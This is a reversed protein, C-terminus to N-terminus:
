RTEPELTLRVSNDTRMRSSVDVARSNFNIDVVKANGVLVSFPAKGRISLDDGTGLMDNYLRTNDSNDVEIWSAGTFHVVLIDEGESELQVLRNSDSEIITYGPLDDSTEVRSEIVETDTGAGAVDQGLVPMSADQVEVLQEVLQQNDNMAPTVDLGSDDGQSSHNEGPFIAFAPAEVISESMAMMETKADPGTEGTFEELGAVLVEATVSNNSAPVNTTAPSVQSSAMTTDADGQHALWWSLGVVVVIILAACIMWRLNQDFAKKARIENAESEVSEEIAAVYHNYCTMIEEESVGMLRAYSRFYGKVFTKGPLKDYQDSELAKVYHVTLHLADAVRSQSLGIEERIKQLKQGPSPWDSVAVAAEVTEEEEPTQIDTESM